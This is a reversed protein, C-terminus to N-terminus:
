NQSSKLCRICDDVFKHLEVLSELDNILSLFVYPGLWTGQPMSGNPSAWDSFVDGIKVRQQRDMLFSHLWCLIISPVGLAELKRMTTPHDLHDFAKAYDVFVTRVSEDADLAAMQALHRGACVLQVDKSRM